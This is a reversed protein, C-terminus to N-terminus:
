WAPIIDMMRRGMVEFKSVDGKVWGKLEDYYFESSGEAPTFSQLRRVAINIYIDLSVLFIM